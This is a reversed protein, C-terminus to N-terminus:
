FRRSGIIRAIEALREYAYPFFAKYSACFRNKELPKDTFTDRDRRCGGRCLPYWNCTKCEEDTHLSKEIFGIKERAKAIDEFGATHINGLKYSDLVYFDCPFVSGDAEIVHQFTCRGLMGCSEPPRGLLMLVLNDFYRVSVPKERKFSRYWLDFLTKLFDGYVEPTLSWKHAPSKEGIPDLCPIYQQYMFNNRLYFEYVEKINKALTASVVTLINYEVRHNDFLRATHLVKNFTGEVASDGQQGNLSKHTRKGGAHIKRLSDHIRKNGDMSLGILFGEEAFFAAWEKDIVIGNTQLAFQVPINYTNYSRVADCFFRFFDLGRLTPEGGQFAFTCAPHTGDLAKQILHEATKETMIGFSKQSRNEMEDCYFCYTCNMNCAGSVPKILLQLPHKEASNM